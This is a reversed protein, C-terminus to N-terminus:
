FLRWQLTIKEIREKAMKSYEESLEILIAKRRHKYAVLGVTGSGGFPDLIVGGEPCGAKILPEVLKQPFTAFHAESFAQPNVDLGVPEDGAFIMGHPPAISQYFLDTNRFNRSGVIDGVAAHFSENAKIGSGAPASKPTVGPLMHKFTKAITQNGPGGDAWKHHDSRGRAYRRHSDPSAQLKISEMDFYYKESKSLLFVYELASAPRDTVSEPMASRKLWPIGSRLWWGDDRLAFAVAWPIGCLDKPKLGSAELTSKNGRNLPHAGAEKKNKGLSSPGGGPNFCSGKGSAYSDGLNVWCVGDKRLVRRVERFIQVIHQIFLEPTPELGLSGRWANCKLCFQGQSVTEGEMKKKGMSGGKPNILDVGYPSRDATSEEGWEHEWDPDCEGQYDWVIPELGYDRLGWYPPSTVCMQCSEAGMGALVELVHGNLITIGANQYFPTM